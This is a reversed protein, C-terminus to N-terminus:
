TKAKTGISDLVPVYDFSQVGITRSGNGVSRPRRGKSRLAMVGERPGIGISDTGTCM